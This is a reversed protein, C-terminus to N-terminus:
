AFASAGFVPGIRENPGNRRRVMAVDSSPQFMGLPGRTRERRYRSNHFEHPRACFKPVRPTETRLDCSTRWSQTFVPFRTAVSPIGRITRPGSESVHHWM